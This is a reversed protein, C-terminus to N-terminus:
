PVSALHQAWTNAQGSWLRNADIEVDLRLWFTLELKLNSAQVSVRLGAIPFVGPALQMLMYTPYLWTSSCVRDFAYEHLEVQGYRVQRYGAYAQSIAPYVSLVFTWSHM